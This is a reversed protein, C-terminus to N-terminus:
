ACAEAPQRLTQLYHEGAQEVADIAQQVHSLQTHANLFTFKLFAQGGVQTGALAFRGSDFLSRRIHRNCDDLQQASLEANPAFRFVLTSLQPKHLLEIQECDQEIWLHAQATLTIAQDFLEGIADAGMWRLTLWLKLADFRRTTQLSKDVLNPIGAQADALPNLYDAHYSAYKLWQRERLVFASCSVPQFFSKHFDISVSDALEIAALRDRYNPSVLLGGGYAADAHLWMGWERCIPAIEPLPDFSGFDTTGQTAVLAMPVLGQQQCDRLAQRLAQPCMRYASDCAVPMVADHGLGLLAAAKKVSFHSVESAFIRLREFGPPLGQTKVCHDLRTECFHDRALLLAMLNSQTGGSTFIGDAGPQWGIKECSWDILAQEILTAGASQDWTDVSTNIASSIVEAVLAPYVIPCNLHAMYHPHHFYVADNLYTCQLEDLVATLDHLPTNLDLEAMISQLEAPSTGSCPDPARSLQQCVREVAQGIAHQYHETAHESFLFTPSSTPSSPVARPPSTLM